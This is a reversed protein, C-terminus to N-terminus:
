CDTDDKHLTLKVIENKYGEQVLTLHRVYVTNWNKKSNLYDALGMRASKGQTNQMVAGSSMQAVENLM